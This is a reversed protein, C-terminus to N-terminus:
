RELSEAHEILIRQVEVIALPHRFAGHGDPVIVQSEATSLHASAYPVIGDSSDPSDGRGRDGLITHHPVPIPRQHLATLFPAYPSLGSISTPARRFDFTTVADSVEALTEMLTNPLRILSAFFGSVRALAVRSGQHPVCIFVLRKVDDNRDFILTDRLLPADPLRKAVHPADAGFIANFIEKGGSDSSQARAVIGGMSHGILVMGDRLEYRQQVARLEERLDLASVPIPQGTPYLFTWFQYHERIIPDKQLEKVVEGWMMPTSLLGHVLIVPIRKDDYPQTFILSTPYAFRDV